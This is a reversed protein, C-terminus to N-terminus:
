NKYKQISLINVKETLENIEQSLQAILELLHEIEAEFQANTM